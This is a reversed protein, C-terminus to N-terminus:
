RDCNATKRIDAYPPKNLPPLFKEEADRELMDAIVRQYEELRERPVFRFMNETTFPAPDQRSM